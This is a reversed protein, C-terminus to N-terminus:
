LKRELEHLTRMADTFAKPTAARGELAAAIRGVPQSALAALSAARAEAPQAAIAPQRQGLRSRFHERAPVLLTALAGSRWQYRAVAALHERLERRVPPAEARVGGFRPVIRWLWLVVLTAAAVCAAWAHQWIWEGLRPMQLRSLLLVEPQPARSYRSLLTWYLEAHEREGIRQNRLQEDLGSALTLHGRGIDFHLIQEGFGRQGASWAPQRGDAQLLQGSADIALSRSAGPLTVQLVRSWQGPIAQPRELRRVGLSDLLPDSVGPLETVAILYGGDEIWALLRRLREASLLYPRQRDLLLTAGAPLHDLVRADSQRTLHGGMRATFREAALWPNRRAEAQPGERRHVPVRELNMTLGSALLLAVVVGVSVWVVRRTM